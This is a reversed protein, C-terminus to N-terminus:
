AYKGRLGLAYLKGVIDFTSEKTSYLLLGEEEAKRRVPEEPIMGGAFIVVNLEAHVAVAVVNLHIQITVLVGGPPAHALVDSLLDCSHGTSVNIPQKFEIEPTLNELNLQRAIERIEM